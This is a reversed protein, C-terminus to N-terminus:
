HDYILDTSLWIAQGLFNVFQKQDNTDMFLIKEAEEM